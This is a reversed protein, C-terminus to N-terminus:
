SGYHLMYATDACGKVYGTTIVGTSPQLRSTPSVSYTEEMTWGDDSSLTM